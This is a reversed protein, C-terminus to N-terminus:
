HVPITSPSPATPTAIDDADDHQLARASPMRPTPPATTAPSEAAGNAESTMNTDFVQVHPLPSTSHLSDEEATAFSLYSSARSESRPNPSPDKFSSPGAPTSALGPPPHPAIIVPSTTTAPPPLNEESKAPSPPLPIHEASRQDDGGAITAHVDSSSAVQPNYNGAQVDAPEDGDVTIRLSPRRAVGDAGIQVDNSSDEDDPGSEDENANSLGSPGPTSSTVEDFGPPPVLDVRSQSAFAVADPGYPVGFRAFTERSSILKLQEPTPGSKPYTFETRVLTHTLPASISNLSIMSASNLRADLAANSRQRSITRFPSPGLSFVSGNGTSQSPRHQTRSRNRSHGDNSTSAVSVISPGSDTRTHSTTNRNNPVPPPSAAGTGRHLFGFISRRRSGNSAQQSHHSQVSQATEPTEPDEPIVDTDRSTTANLEDMPVVEFYPPAEGRPDPTDPQQDHHEHEDSDETSLLTEFSPRNHLQDLNPPPILTQGSLDAEPNFDEPSLLPMDHPSDPMNGYERTNVRSMNLSSDPSETGHEEVPPMNMMNEPMDEMDSPGRYIVLEEDGPEKMYM